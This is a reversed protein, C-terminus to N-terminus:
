LHTMTLDTLRGTLALFLAIAWVMVGLIWTLREPVIRGWYFSGFLLISGAVTMLVWESFGNARSMFKMGFWVLFTMWIPIFLFYASSFKREGATAKRFREGCLIRILLNWLPM